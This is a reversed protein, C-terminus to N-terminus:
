YNIFKSTWYSKARSQGELEMDVFEMHLSGAINTSKDSLLNVYNITSNNYVRSFKLTISKIARTGEGTSVTKYSDVTVSSSKVPFDVDFNGYELGAKFAEIDLPLLPDGEDIIYYMPESFTLTVEGSYPQEANSSSYNTIVTTVLVTPKTRDAPTISEIRIIQSDGGGAPSKAVAYFDYYVERELGEIGILVKATTDGVNIRAVSSGFDIPKYTKNEERNRIVSGDVLSPMSERNFVIWDVTAEKDLAIEIVASNELRDKVVASVAKPPAVPVTQFEITRMTSTEAPTGKLFCFMTYNVNPKLGEIRLEMETKGSTVAFSGYAGDQPKYKNNMIGDATPDTVTGTKVILYYFTASKTTKIIPRVLTDGVQSLGNSSDNDNDLMPYGSEFDPVITDTFYVKISFEKPYNVITVKGETLAEKFRDTPNDAVPTLSSNSGIICKVKFEINSSWGKKETDGNISIIKIGYETQKLDKFKNFDYEDLNSLIKDKINQLSISKGKEVIIKGPTLSTGTVKTFSTSGVPKEYVEFEVKENSEFIVDYLINNNTESVQPILEFTMDMGTSAITENIEVMPAVTNFSPLLTREDMRNSSTDAIKNLEFQYANGSKLELAGKPFTVVTYGDVDEVSAKTFDIDVAPKKLASIDYLVINKELVEASVDSLKSKSGNDIVIESFKIRIESGAVVDGSITEEFELVATPATNDLTKVDLYKVDSINNFSDVSVVYLDYPTEANLGSITFKSEVNQKATAKGSKYGNSGAVVQNKAEQSDLSPIKGGPTAPVPFVDSKRAIVYYINGNENVKIKVDISKDTVKDVMPYGNSFVPATLDSTKLKLEAIDSDTIGDSVLIYVVYDTYEKLGGINIIKEENKLCNEEIGKSAAGSVAQSKLNMANPAVSGNPLVAWYAKCNKTTNVIIDAGTNNVSLIKPYNKLFDPKAGINLQKISSLNGAKDEAVFYLDYEEEPKLGSLKITSQTNAKINSTKNNKDAGKGTIVQKKAEDSTISPATGDANQVPFVTGGKYIAYYIKSEEDVSVTIEAATKDENTIKPYGLNFQPATMDNTTLSLRTVGSEYKEDALLIYIDYGQVEKLGSVNITYEKYKDVDEKTGNNVNGFLKQTKLAKADPATTGKPFAGWYLTCDKTTVFNFEASTNLIKGLKPYGSVFAPNSTDITTFNVTKRSSEENKEDVFVASVTYEADKTLGNVKAIYDDSSNVKINGSKIITSNYKGPKIINESSVKGDEYNTLAWYVTGPKNTKFSVTADSPGINDVDPYGKMFKPSYSHEEADKYTMENGNVEAKLGPRIEVEDPLMSIESGEANVKLYGVKGNGTVETGVDLLLENVYSDSDISVEAKKAEEDVILKNVNADNLYLSSEPGMVTVQNFDGTLYLESDKNGKFVIDRFGGDRYALEELFTSTYIKATEVTTTGDIKITKINDGSGTVILNLITSNDFTISSKGAYSEGTGSIIVDGLVHVNDFYTHGLGVAQTIYLDGTIITDKLTVGSSSVTVNGTTYGLSYDGSSSIIEGVADSFMKSAEGRTIYNKPKFTNDEYGSIYGKQSAANVYGRSWNEISKSDNFRTDSGPTQEIYTNRCLLSVAQERTLYGTANSTSKGDGSFYGENYAISIDDAYWENGKIDKFPNSGKESYGFARNIISVFEARTIYKNPNMNGNSDGRLLGRDYLNRMYSEAWHNATGMNFEGAFAISETQHNFVTGACVAATVTLFVSVKKLKKLFTEDYGM